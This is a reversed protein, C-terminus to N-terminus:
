ALGNLVECPFVNAYYVISFWIFGCLIMCLMFSWMLSEMVMFCWELSYIVKYSGFPGFM